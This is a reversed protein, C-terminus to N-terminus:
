KATKRVRSLRERLMAKVKRILLRVDKHFFVEYLLATLAASTLMTLAAKAAWLLFNPTAFTYLRETALWTLVAVVVCLLVHQWFIWLSRNILNRSLYVSYQVSRFITAVVTGAAVGVLGFRSVALVSIGINLGAEVFAGNRTQKFHGAAETITQYPIRFCSFAGAVTILAAFLPRMYNVDNIGSTYVSVFPLITCGATSYIIATLGFVIIEYIRLNEEALDKEGRALMNGFAAGFGTVFTMLVQRINVIVYNYVTYVSVERMSVFMTLVMIDTNNHIFFAISQGVADWRQKLADNNPPVSKDIRYKRGIYVNLMLPVMSFAAASGLKVVHIGAGLKILLAALLTNLVIAATQILSLVYQRQDAELLIQYSVGFYYQMFTSIGMILVLTASFLWEFEGSVLFPYLGAFVLISAAFITAIRRMFRETANVIASIETLNKEALPKYLAARTVGFVGARLLAVCSLFQTISSTIGNYSSGFHSLILRPVILGCIVAVLQYGMTVVMNKLAKQSRM